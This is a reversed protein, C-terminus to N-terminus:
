TGYRESVKCEKTEGLIYEVDIVDGNKLTTFHDAIFKHAVHMTRVTLPTWDFADHKATVDGTMKILIINTRDFGYGARRLLFHQEKDDPVLSIAMCPIFTASDRIELMLSKM